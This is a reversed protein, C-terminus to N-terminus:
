RAARSPAAPAPATRNAPTRTARTATRAARRDRRVLALVALLLATSAGSSCGCPRGVAGGMNGGDASGGDRSGGDPTPPNGGDGGSGADSQTGADNGSGADQQSGADNGPALRTGTTLRQASLTAFASSTVALWDPGSGSAAIRPNFNGSASAPEILLGPADLPNGDPDLELAADQSTTSHTVMVYTNSVPNWAVSNADYAAYMTSVVVQAGLTGDPAVTRAVMQGPRYWVCLFRHTLPNWALEPIYGAMIPADLSLVSGVTAGTAADYFQARIFCNNNGVCGGYAVLYRNDDPDYGVGPDREYGATSDVVIVGGVLAGAESVRQAKVLTAGFDQWAVLFEHQTSSWAVAAGMEWNSGTPSIDFDSTLPPQGNRILRGRVLVANSAQTAHWTVLWAGANTSFAARPAQAYLMDSNVVFASGMASGDPAFLQGMVNVEGSVALFVGGGRAVDVWRVPAVGAPPMVSVPMDAASLQAMAHLPLLVLAVSPLRM